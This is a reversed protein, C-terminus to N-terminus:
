SQLGSEFFNSTNVPASWVRGCNICTQEIEKKIGYKKLEDGIISIDDPDVQNFLYEGWMKKWKKDVDEGNIKTLSETYIAFQRKINKNETPYKQGGIICDEITPYRLEITKIDQLVEGTRSNIIKVPESLDVFIKNNIEEGEKDGMNIIDLDEIKDYGGSNEDKGKIIQKNCRPCKYVGEIWDDKNIKLMIYIAIVEATIYPMKRCISQIQQKTDFQKNETSNFSTIGGVLFELIAPFDGQSQFIEYTQAIVGTKPKQYECSEIITGDDLFCPIPLKM